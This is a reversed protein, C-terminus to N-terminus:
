SLSLAKQGQKQQILDSALLYRARSSEQAQSGLAIAKPAASQAIAELKARRQNATLSVLSFVRTDTKTESTIISDKDLLCEITRQAVARGYKAELFPTAILLALLGVATAVTIQKKRRKRRSLNYRSFSLRSTKM